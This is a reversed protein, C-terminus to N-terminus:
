WNMDRVKKCTMVKLLRVEYKEGKAKYEVQVADWVKDIYVFRVFRTM